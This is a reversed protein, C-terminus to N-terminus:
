CRSLISQRHSYVHLCKCCYFTNYVANYLCQLSSFISKYNYSLIEYFISVFSKSANKKFCHEETCEIKLQEL